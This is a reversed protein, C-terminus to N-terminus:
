HFKCIDFLCVFRSIHSIERNKQSDFLIVSSDYSMEFENELHEKEIATM